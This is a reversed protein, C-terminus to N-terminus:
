RLMSDAARAAAIPAAVAEGARMAFDQSYGTDGTFFWHFDEGLTAWGGWLTSTGTASALPGVLAARPRVSIRSARPATTSMGIGGTSNSWGRRRRPAGAVAQIGLPVLFLRREARRPQWRRCARATSIITTITRFRGRRRHAASGRACVGPRQARAPGRIQVPSARLSFLDPDTLVNLGSAQVLVTAHGIWTVAPSMDRVRVRMAGSSTWIQGWGRRPCGHTQAAPSRAIRQWQWRLSTASRNPSRILTTTAFGQPRTTTRRWSSSIRAFNAATERRVCPKGAASPAAKGALSRGM